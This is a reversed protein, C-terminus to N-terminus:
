RERRGCNRYPQAVDHKGRERYKEGEGGETKTNSISQRDREEQGDQIGQRGGRM